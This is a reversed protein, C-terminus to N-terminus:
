GAPGVYFWEGGERVFASTERQVGRERRVDDWFHAAFAVTGDLDDAGGGTTGTVELRRWQPTGALDLRAPRTSPHWTALLYVPDGVAFASYRSRM